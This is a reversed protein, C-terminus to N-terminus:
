IKILKDYITKVKFNICLGWEKLVSNVFGTFAKITKVERMKVGFLFECDVNNKFINCNKVTRDM